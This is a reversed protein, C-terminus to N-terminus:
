IGLGGKTEKQSCQKPTCLVNLQQAARPAGLGLADEASGPSAGAWQPGGRRERSPYQGRRETSADDMGWLVVKSKQINRGMEQKASSTLKGFSGKLLWTFLSPSVQASIGM